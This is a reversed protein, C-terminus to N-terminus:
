CDSSMNKNITVDGSINKSSFILPEGTPISRLDGVHWTSVYVM